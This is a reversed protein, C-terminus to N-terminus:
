ATLTLLEHPSEALYSPRVALLAERDGGTWVAGATAAKAAAAAALVAPSASM